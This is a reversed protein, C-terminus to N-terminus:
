ADHDPRLETPKEAAGEDSQLRQERARLQAEWDRMMKEDLQQSRAVGALFEPDDDPTARAPREHEPFGATSTSPWPVSRRVTVPRGVVLWAVGGIVPLVIILMIWVTKPLNRIQSEDAQIADILCYVLLGIEVLYPLARIMPQEWDEHGCGPEPTAALCEISAM